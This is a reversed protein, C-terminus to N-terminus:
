IKAERPSALLVITSSDEMPKSSKSGKGRPRQRGKTDSSSSISAAVASSQSGESRPIRILKLKTNRETTRWSVKCDKPVSKVKRICFLKVRGPCFSESLILLGPFNSLKSLQRFYCPWAALDEGFHWRKAMSPSIAKKAAKCGSAHNLALGM